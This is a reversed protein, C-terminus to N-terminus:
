ARRYRLMLFDDDTLVSALTLGLPQPRGAGNAIRLAGAGALLPAVTLCLQDVLGAAILDGFLTPGGECCM